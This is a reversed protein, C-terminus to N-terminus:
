EKAAAAAKFPNRQPAEEHPVLGLLRLTLQNLVPQRHRLWVAM